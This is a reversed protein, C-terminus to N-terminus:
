RDPDAAHEDLLQQRRAGVLLAPSGLVLDEFEDFEYGLKRTFTRAREKPNASTGLAEQIDALKTRPRGNAAATMWVISAAATQPKGRALAEPAVEALRIALRSAATGFEPGYLHAAAASALEAVESALPRQPEPVRDLKPTDGIPLPESTLSELAERGGVADIRRRAQREAWWRDLDEEDIEGAPDLFPRTAELLADIGMPRGPRLGDLFVPEMDDVVELVEDTHRGEMGIQRHCWRILARLVAPYSRLQREPAVVKRLAWDGLFIEVQRPGWRHLDNNTYGDKFWLMSDVATRVAEDDGALSRREDSALFEEIFRERAEESTPEWDPGIVPDPLLGVAWEILIAHDPWTETTVPPLTRNATDIAEDLIRRVEAAPADTIALAPERRIAQRVEEIPAPAVFGDSLHFGGHHDAFVLVSLEEGSALRVGFCLHRQEDFPEQTEFAGYAMAGRLEDLLPALHDARSGRGASIQRLHDDDLLEAVVALVDASDHRSGLQAEVEQPLAQRDPVALGRTMPMMVALQHSVGLLLDFLPPPGVEAPPGPRLHPPGALGAGASWSRPRTGRPTVRGGHRKRKPRTM